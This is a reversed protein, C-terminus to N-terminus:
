GSLGNTNFYKHGIKKWYKEFTAKSINLIDACIYVLDYLIKCKNRYMDYKDGHQFEMNDFIYKKTFIINPNLSLLYERLKNDKFMLNKDHNGWVIIIKSKTTKLYNKLGILKIENIIIIDTCHSMELFDGLFINKNYKNKQLRKVMKINNNRTEKIGIHCDADVSILKNRNNLELYYGNYGESDLLTFKDNILHYHYHGVYGYIKHKLFYNYWSNLFFDEYKNSPNTRITKM